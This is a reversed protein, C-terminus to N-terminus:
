APVAQRAGRKMTESVFELAIRWVEAVEPNWKKGLVEEFMRVMAQVIVEYHEERAGYAVHRRGLAELMPVLEHPREITAVTYRLSEMLKRGQIEMRTSFMPRLEPALTFVHRYFVLAAIEAQEEVRAFSERLHRVQTSTM